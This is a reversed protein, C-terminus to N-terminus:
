SAAREELKRWLEADRHPRASLSIGSLRVILQAPGKFLLTRDTDTQRVQLHCQDGEFRLLSVVADRPLTIKSWNTGHEGLEFCSIVQTSYDSDTGPQRNLEMFGDEVDYAHHQRVIFVHRGNPSVAIKESQQQFEQLPAVDGKRFRRQLEEIADNSAWHIDELEHLKDLSHAKKHTTRAKFFDIYAVGIAPVASCWLRVKGDSRQYWYGMEMENWEHGEKYGNLVYLLDRVPDSKVSWYTISQIKEQWESVILVHYSGASFTHQIAEPFEDLRESETPSGYREFAEKMKSGLPILPVNELRHRGLFYFDIFQRFSFMPIVSNCCHISSDCYTPWRVWSLPLRWISYRSTTASLTACSRLNSLFNAPVREEVPKGSM